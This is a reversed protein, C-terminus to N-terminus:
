ANFLSSCPGRHQKGVPGQTRCGPRPVSLYWYLCPSSSLLPWSLTLRRGGLDVPVIYCAIEVVIQFHVSESESSTVVFVKEVFDRLHLKWGQDCRMEPPLARRPRSSPSVTRKEDGPECVHYVSVHLCMLM